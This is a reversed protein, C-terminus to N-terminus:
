PDNRSYTREINITGKLWYYREQAGSTLSVDYGYTGQELAASTNSPLELKVLGNTADFLTGIFTAAQSDSLPSYIDGDVVYGTLDAPEAFFLPTVPTADITIPAGGQTTSLTFSDPTLDTASVFYISNFSLGSPPEGTVSASTSATYVASAHVQPLIVLKDGASFGHRNITFYPTKDDFAVAQLNGLKLHHLVRIVTWWTSNQLVRLDLTAPYIM